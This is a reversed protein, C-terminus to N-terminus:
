VWCQCHLSINSFSQVKGEWACGTAKSIREWFDSVNHKERCLVGPELDQQESLVEIAKPLPYLLARQPRSLDPHILELQALSKDLKSSFLVPFPCPCGQKGERSILEEYNQVLESKWSTGKGPLQAAGPAKQRELKLTDLVSRGKARTSGVWDTSSPTCSFNRCAKPWLHAQVSRLVEGKVVGLKPSAQLSM